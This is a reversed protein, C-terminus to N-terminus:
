VFIPTKQIELFALLKDIESVKFIRYDILSESTMLVYGQFVKNISTANDAVLIATKAPESIISHDNMAKATEFFTNSSGTINQLQSFDYFANQGVSYDDEAMLNGVHVIIDEFSITRSTKVAFLNDELFFQYYLKDFPLVQHM